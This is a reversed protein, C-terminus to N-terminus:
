EVGLHIHDGTANPNFFVYKATTEDRLYGAVRRSGPRGEIYFYLSHAALWTQGEASVLYRIVGDCFSFDVANGHFHDSKRNYHRKLSNITAAPGGYAELASKLVDTVTTDIRSMQLNFGLFNGGRVYSSKRNRTRLPKSNKVEKNGAEVRAAEISILDIPIGVSNVQASTLLFTLGVLSM